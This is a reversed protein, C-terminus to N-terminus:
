PVGGIMLFADREFQSQEARLRENEALLRANEAEKREAFELFFVRRSELSRREDALRELNEVLSRFMNRTEAAFTADPDRMSEGILAGGYFAVSEPDNGQTPM